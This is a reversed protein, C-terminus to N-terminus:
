DTVVVRVQLFQQLSVSGTRQPDVKWFAQRLIDKELAAPARAASCARESLYKLHRRMM